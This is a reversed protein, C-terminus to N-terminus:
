RRLFWFKFSWACLFGHYNSNAAFLVTSWRNVPCDPRQTYGTFMDYLSRARLGRDLNVQWFLGPRGRTDGIIVGGGDGAAKGLVGSRQVESVAHTLDPM